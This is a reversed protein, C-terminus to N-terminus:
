LYYDKQKQKTFCFFIRRRQLFSAFSKQKQPRPHIRVQGSLHAQGLAYIRSKGTPQLGLM